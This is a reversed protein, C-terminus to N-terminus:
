SIIGDDKSKKSYWLLFAAVGIVIIPMISNSISVEMYDQIFFNYVFQTLVGLLSLLFLQIAFKKKILLLICGITGGFVAFAFAATVWAPINTYYIQEAKPLIKLAENTMYAQGLYASVGMLNWILAAIGIIWFTPKPKNITNSM